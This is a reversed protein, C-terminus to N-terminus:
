SCPAAWCRAVVSASPYPVGGYSGSAPDLSYALHVIGIGM